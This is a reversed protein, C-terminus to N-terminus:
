GNGANKRIVAVIVVVISLLRLLFMWTAGENPREFNLLVSHLAAQIGFFAAFALFLSDGTERWFRLFFLAAVLSAGAILGLLFIDTMPHTIPSM